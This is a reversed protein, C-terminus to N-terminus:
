RHRRRDHDHQTTTAPRSPTPDLVTPHDHAYLRRQLETFATGSLKDLETRHDTDTVELRLHDLAALQARWEDRHAALAALGTRQVRDIYGAFEEELSRM